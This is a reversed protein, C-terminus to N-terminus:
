WYWDIAYQDTHIDILQGYEISGRSKSTNDRRYKHISYADEVEDDRRCQSTTDEDKRNITDYVRCTYYRDCDQVPEERTSTLKM